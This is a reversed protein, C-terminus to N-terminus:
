IRTPIRHVRAGGALGRKRPPSAGGNPRGDRTPLEGIPGAFVPDTICTV